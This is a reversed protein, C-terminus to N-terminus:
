QEVSLLLVYVPSFWMDNRLIEFRMKVNLRKADCM